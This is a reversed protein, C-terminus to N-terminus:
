FIVLKRDSCIDRTLLSGKCYVADKAPYVITVGNGRGTLLFLLGAKQFWDTVKRSPHPGVGAPGATCISIMGPFRKLAKMTDEWGEPPFGVGSGHHPIKLIDLNRTKKMAELTGLWPADGTFLVDLDRWTMHIIMSMGNIDLEMDDPARGPGSVSFEMNGVSVRNGPAVFRVPVGPPVDFLIKRWLSLESQSSPLVVSEVQWNRLIYGSGGTHDPHPHSLFLTKIRRIGERRLNRALPPERGSLGPPGSDILVTIGEAKIIAADAKGLGPFKLVMRNRSIEEGAWHGFSGFMVPFLLLLVKGKVSRKGKWWLIMCILSCASASVSGYLNLSLYAWKLEGARILLAVVPYALAKWLNFALYGGYSWFFSVADGLVALPILLATFPIGVCLNWLPALIPIGHFVAVVVPLTFIYAGMCVELWGRPGRKGDSVTTWIGLCALMSLTLSVDPQPVSSFSGILLYTWALSSPLHFDRYGISGAVAIVAFISARLGSPSLGTILLYYLCTVAGGSM